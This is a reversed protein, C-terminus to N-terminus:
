KQFHDKKKGREAIEAFTGTTEKTKISHKKHEKMVVALHTISESAYFAAMFIHNIQLSGTM